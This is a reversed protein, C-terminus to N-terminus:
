RNAAQTDVIRLLDGMLINFDARHLTGGSDAASAQNLALQILQPTFLTNRGPTTNIELFGDAACDASYLGPYGIWNTEVGDPFPIGQNRDYITNAAITPTGGLQTPNVCPRPASTATRDTGQAISDYAVICGVETDAECLPISSFTGGVRQGEPVKLRNTPGILLASIMRQKLADNNEFRNKLLDILVHSGQSHGILVFNREPNQNLYYDFAEEIDSYGMQFFESEFPSELTYSGITMQRYKPAFVRCMQTFRAAQNYLPLLMPQEDDLDTTNGPEARMDVTPYVYFCDFEPNDAIEHTVVSTNADPDVLTVDLDVTQCRDNDIGPKCLWLSDDAYRSPNNDNNDSDSGCASLLSAAIFLLSVGCVKLHHNNPM